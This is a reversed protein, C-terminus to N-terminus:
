FTISAEVDKPQFGSSTEIVTWTLTDMSLYFSIDAVSEKFASILATM